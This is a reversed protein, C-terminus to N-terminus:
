NTSIGTRSFHQKQAFNSIPPYIIPPNPRKNLIRNIIPDATITPSDSGSSLTWM